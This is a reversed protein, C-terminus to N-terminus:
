FKEVLFTKQEEYKSAGLIELVESDVVGAKSFEAPPKQSSGVSFEVPTKVVSVLVPTEPTPSPTLLVLSVEYFKEKLKKSKKKFDKESMEKAVESSMGKEILQKQKQRAEEEMKDLEEKLKAEKEQM